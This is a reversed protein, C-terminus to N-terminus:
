SLTAGDNAAIRWKKVGGITVGTLKVFDAVDAMTIVTNGAYNVSQSATIVCTGGDVTVLLALEQGDYTPSALTRTESGATTILVIGSAIIPIAGANGPDAIVNELGNTGVLMPSLVILGTSSPNAAAEAAFGALTNGSSATTFQSLSASWYLNVGGTWAQASVKAYEILGSVVYVNAVNADASNVALMPKSNLLYITDKVTASSHTYIVTRVVIMNDRVKVAGFLFPLMPLMLAGKPVSFCFIGIGVLILLSVMILGILSFKKFRKKV